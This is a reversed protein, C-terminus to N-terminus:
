SEQKKHTTHTQTYILTHGHTDAHIQTYRCTYTYRHTDMHIEVGSPKRCAATLEGTRQTYRYRKRKRKTNTTEKEKEKEKYKQTQKPTQRHRNGCM